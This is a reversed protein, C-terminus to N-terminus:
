AFSLKEVVGRPRKLARCLGLQQLDSVAVVFRPLLAKDSLEARRTIAHAKFAEFWAVADVRCTNYDRLVDAAAATAWAAPLRANPDSAM